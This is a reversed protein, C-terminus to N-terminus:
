TERLYAMLLFNSIEWGNVAGCCRGTFKCCWQRSLYAEAAVAFLDLIYVSFHCFTLFNRQQKKKEPFNKGRVAINVGYCCSRAVACVM